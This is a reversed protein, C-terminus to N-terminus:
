RCECVRGRPCLQALAQGAFLGCVGTGAGLELINVPEATLSSVAQEQCWELVFSALPRSPPWVWMARVADSGQEGDQAPLLAFRFACGPQSSAPGSLPVPRPRNQSTTSSDRVAPPRNRGGQRQAGVRHEGDRIGGRIARPLAGEARRGLFADAGPGAAKRPAPGPGFTCPWAHSAAPRASPAPLVAQPPSAPGHLIGHRVTGRPQRRQLLATATSARQWFHSTPAAQWCRADSSDSPLPSHTQEIGLM